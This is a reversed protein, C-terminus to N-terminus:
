GQSGLLWKTVSRSPVDFEYERLHGRLVWRIEAFPGSTAEGDSVSCFFYRLEVKRGEIEFELPPQGVVIEVAIGLSKMALRRTAEEPSEGREVSSRPFQWQRSVGESGEPLAILMHSDHREIVAAVYVPKRIQNEVSM